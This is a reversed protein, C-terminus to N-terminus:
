ERTADGSMKQLKLDHVAARVNAQIINQDMQSHTWVGLCCRLELGHHERWWAESAPQPKPTPTSTHQVTGYLVGEGVCQPVDLHDQASTRGHDGPRNLTTRATSM